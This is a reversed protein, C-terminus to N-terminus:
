EEIVEYKTGAPLIFYQSITGWHNKSLEVKEEFKLLRVEDEAGVRCAGSQARYRFQVATISPSSQTEFSAYDTVLSASVSCPVESYVTLKLYTKTDPTPVGHVHIKELTQAKEITFDAQASLGGLLIVATLLFTKM